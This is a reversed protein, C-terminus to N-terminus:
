KVVLKTHRTMGETEVELIYFGKPLQGIDIKHTGAVSSTEQVLVMVGNMSRVRVIGPKGEQGGVAVNIETTAPNPFVTVAPLGPEEVGQGKVTFRFWNINFEPQIIKVRLRCVGQSLSIDGGATRWTQWGGTVPVNLYASGIVGGADNLQQFLLVGASNLCAIRAEIHYVATESVRINYELYDGTSTYGMDQGGGADTCAEAKLGQNVSFDEAEIKGPLPMHYPLNNRVPLNIFNGLSTGDTARIRGGAYSLLITDADSLPQSLALVVQQPNAANLAFATINVPSGNVTCSFGDAVATTDALQKNFGLGIQETQQLTEASVPNLPLETIKKSLTFRYYGVNIGGQDFTLRLDRTGRYLIVDPIIFHSWTSFGGSSPVALSATLDAGGSGLRIKSGAPGAYRVQVTYAASSDVQATYKMWEGAATWGVDFRNSAPDPDTSPEIDVGDNRYSYGSNWATYTGTSVHYDATDTDYYASGNRGLDYDSAQVTGPIAQHAFPLTSADNVQRFMADIVDKRYICYENKANTAMQMLAYTAFGQSPQTGGSNWYDLLSQYEPTKKITLPNVVSNIKKLPWWAWGIGQQEVLRIASTFWPNSNEGSEGLWVPINHQSRLNLIGQISGIDNYSWYKHFSLAMNGDWPPLIGNYNNGWCNGEIIIMHVADVQRIAATIDIMLQRLPANSNESCGNQNGGSTFSWNPENIIDYGGVYPENAYREALKRWLAVTKQRNAASEWLSPKAPNGDCIAYDKGQGGPAAHLDLIVYMHHATCWKVLSDTLRFGEELWTQTGPVPEEEVPLTYLNYHMPLRVSNFGWSAM